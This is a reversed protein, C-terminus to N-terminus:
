KIVNWFQPIEDLSATRLKRGLPTIRPDNDVKHERHWQVLQDPNLYKEVDDSDAVMSRFKYIRFPRGLRGIREQTYIPTGKTDIAIFISLVLGPIFGVVVVILSFVIDFLRKGIRYPLSRSDRKRCEEAFEDSGLAYERMTPKPTKLEESVVGEPMMAADTEVTFM